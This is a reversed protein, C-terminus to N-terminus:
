QKTNMSEMGVASSLLEIGQFDSDKLENQPPQNSEHWTSSTRPSSNNISTTTVTEGSNGFPTQRLPTQM